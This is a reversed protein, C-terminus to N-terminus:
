EYQPWYRYHRGLIGYGLGSYNYPTYFGPYRYIRDVTTPRYGRIYEDHERPDYYSSLIRGNITRRVKPTWKWERELRDYRYRSWTHPTLEGLYRRGRQPYNSHDEQGWATDAVALFTFIACGSILWKM